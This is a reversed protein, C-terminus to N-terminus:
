DMSLIVRSVSRKVKRLIDSGGQIDIHSCKDFSCIYIDIPIQMDKIKVNENEYKSNPFLDLSSKGICEMIGTHCVSCNM